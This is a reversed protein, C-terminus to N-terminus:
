TAASFVIIDEDLLDIKADFIGNINQMHPLHLAQCSECEFFEIGLQLLWTKLVTLDPVPLNNM